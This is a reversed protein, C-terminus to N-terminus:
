INEFNLLYEFYDLHQIAFYKKFPYRWKPLASSIKRMRSFIRFLFDIRLLKLPDVALVHAVLMVIGRWNLKGLEGRYQKIGKMYNWETIEDSDIKHPSISRGDTSKGFLGCDDISRLSYFRDPFNSHRLILTEIGKSKAIQYCLTDSFLHPFEFFLVLNIQQEVLYNALLDIVIQYYHKSDSICNIKHHRWVFNKSKRELHELGTMISNKYKRSSTLELADGAYKDSKLLYKINGIRREMRVLNTLGIDHKNGVVLLKSSEPLQNEVQKLIPRMLFDAAGFVLINLPESRAPTSDSM